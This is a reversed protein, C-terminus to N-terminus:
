IIRVMDGDDLGDGSRLEDSFSQVLSLIDPSADLSRLTEIASQVRDTASSETSKSVTMTFNFKNVFVPDLEFATLVAARIQDEKEMFKSFVGCDVAIQSCVMTGFLLCGSDVKKSALIEFKFSEGDGLTIEGLLEGLADRRGCQNYPDLGGKPQVAEKRWAGAGSLSGTPTWSVLITFPVEAENRHLLYFVVSTMICLLINFVSSAFSVLVITTVLKLEFLFIYQLVIQPINEALVTALVQHSQFHQLQLTSLGASLLPLGFLNSNMLKLARFSGGSLLVLITFM